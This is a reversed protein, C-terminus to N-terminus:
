KKSSTNLLDLAKGLLWTLIFYIITIIILPFFADFTRSRIIDSAKTLDMVAIYGVVSTMKVLGGAEGKFVSLVQKVAQPLIIYRFTQFGTFGMAIGAKRQGPDIGELGSRFIESAFASFNISFAIIAVAVANVGLQAFVVYFLIMLLVLIPIGRIIMIYYKATGSLWRRRSMRMACVGVSLVTGLLLSLISILVTYGLGELILMWRREKIINNYFSDAINKFFSPKDEKFNRAEPHDPSLNKGQVIAYSTLQMYPEAFQIKEGREPTYMISCGAIDIFDTALGSILGGFDMSVLEVDRKISKAFLSVLEVDFGAPRNDIVFTYPIDLLTTGFRIPKGGFKEFEVPKLRDVNSTDKWKAALADLEGSEMLGRQFENFQQVLPSGKQFCISFDVPCFGKELVALQPNDLLVAAASAEDLIIADCQDNVLGNIVDAKNNYVSYEADPYKEKFWLDQTSGLLTGVNAQALDDLTMFRKGAPANELRILIAAYGNAYSDSFNVKQAREETICISSCAMEVIGTSVSAVLGGFDMISFEIPRGIAAAFRHVLEIDLGCNEGDRVFDFFPTTGTCAVTLPEGSRPVDSLDPLESSDGNEMWKDVLKQLEGSERFDALFANFQELLATNEKNFIMGFPEARWDTVFATLDPNNEEIEYWAYTDFAAATVNNNKLALVLDTYSSYTVEKADPFDEQIYTAHTTGGVLGIRADQLDKIDNIIGQDKPACSCILALAALLHFLKKMILNM